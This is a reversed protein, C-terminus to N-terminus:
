DLLGAIRCDPDLDGAPSQVNALQSGHKLRVLFSLCKAPLHIRVPGDRQKVAWSKHRAILAFLNTGKPVFRFPVCRIPVLRVHNKTFQVTKRPFKGSIEIPHLGLELIV